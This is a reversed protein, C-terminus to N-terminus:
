ADNMHIYSAQDEICLMAVQKGQPWGAAHLHVWGWTQPELGPAIGPKPGAAMQALLLLGSDM